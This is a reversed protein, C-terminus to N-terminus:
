DRIDNYWSFDDFKQIKIKIEPPSSVRM